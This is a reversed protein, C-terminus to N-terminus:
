GGSRRILRTIPPTLNFGVNTIRGGNKVVAWWPVDVAEFLIERLGQTQSLLQFFELFAPIMGAFAREDAETVHAREFAPRDRAITEASVPQESLQLRFPHEKLVPDNRVEENGLHEFMVLPRDFGLALFQPNVTVRSVVDKADAAGTRESYPGRVRIREATLPAAPFVLEHGSNTFFRMPRSRAQMQEPAPDVLSFEVIWQRVRRADTVQVLVTETDGSRSPLDRAAIRLGDPEPAAARTAPLATIPAFEPPTPFPPPTTAGFASVGTLLFALCAIPSNVPHTGAPPPLAIRVCRVGTALPTVAAPVRM